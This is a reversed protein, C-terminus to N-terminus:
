PMLSEDRQRPLLLQRMLSYRYTDSIVKPRGFLRVLNVLMMGFRPLHRQAISALLGHSTTPKLSNSIRQGIVVGERKAAAIV